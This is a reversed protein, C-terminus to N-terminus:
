LPTIQRLRSPGNQATGRREGRWEGRACREDRRSRTKHIHGSSSQGRRRRSARRGRESASTTGTIRWMHLTSGNAASRCGSPRMMARPVCSMFHTQVCYRSASSRSSRPGSRTVLKLRVTWKDNMGSSSVPPSHPICTRAAAVLACHLFPRLSLGARGAGVRSARQPGSHLGRAPQQGKRGEKVTEWTRGREKGQGDDMQRGRMRQNTRQSQLFPDFGRLELRQVNAEREVLADRVRAVLKGNEISFTAHPPQRQLRLTRRAVRRAEHRPRRRRLQHSGHLVKQRVAVRLLLLEEGGVGVVGGLACVCEAGLERESVDDGDVEGHELRADGDVASLGVAHVDDGHLRLGAETLGGAWRGALCAARADGSTGRRM